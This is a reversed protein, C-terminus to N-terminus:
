RAALVHQSATHFTGSAGRGELYAKGVELQAVPDGNEANRLNLKFMRAARAAAKADLPAGAAGAASAAGAAGAAGRADTVDGAGKREAAPASEVPTSTPAGAAAARALAASGASTPPAAAPPPAMLAGEHAKERGATLKDQTAKLELVLM